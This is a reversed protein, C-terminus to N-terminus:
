HADRPISIAFVSTPVVDSEAWPLDWLGDPSGKEGLRSAVWM